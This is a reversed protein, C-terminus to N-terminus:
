PQPLPPPVVVGANKAVEDDLVVKDEGTYIVADGPQVTMGKLFTGPIIDAVSQTAEINTIRLRGIARGNRAVVLVKNNAAGAKDGISVICFGWGSNVAMVRGQIGKQMINEVHKKIVVGQNAIKKENGTIIDTLSAVKSELGAKDKELQVIAAEQEKTKTVLETIKSKLGRIGETLDGGPLVEEIAKKIEALEGNAKDLEAKTTQLETKTKALEEETTRLKERTQELDAKTEALIRETEALKEETQKLKIRTRLLDQYQAEGKKQLTDVLKQSEFGLWIAVGAVILTLISFIKAM